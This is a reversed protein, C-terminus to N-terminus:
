RELEDKQKKPLQIQEKETYRFQDIREKEQALKQKAFTQFG